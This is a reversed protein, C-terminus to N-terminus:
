SKKDGQRLNALTNCGHYCSNQFDVLPITKSPLGHIHSFEPVRYFKGEKSCYFNLLQVGQSSTILLRSAAQSSNSCLTSFESAHFLPFTHQDGGAPCFIIIWAYLITMHIFSQQEPTEETACLNM